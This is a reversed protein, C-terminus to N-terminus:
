SLYLRSLLSEASIPKLGPTVLHFSLFGEGILLGFDLAALIQKDMRNTRDHRVVFRDIVVDIQYNAEEDLTLEDSLDHPQGNIIVRRYGKTRVDDLLYAWEEGYYKFVPAASKSKRAKRCPVGSWSETRTSRITNRTRCYPCHAVGITAFLM